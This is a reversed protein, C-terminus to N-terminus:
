VARAIAVVGLVGSVAGTLPIVINAIDICISVIHLIKEWTGVDNPVGYAKWSELIMTAQDETLDPSFLDEVDQRSRGPLLAHIQDHAESRSLSM